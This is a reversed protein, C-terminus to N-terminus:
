PGSRATAKHIVTPREPLERTSDAEQPLLKGAAIKEVTDFGKSVKGVITYNGDLVAAPALAIYLRVGASSQDADRTFGVTGAAHKEESFESRLRYGIHGVGPDGTGAPCGFRILRVESKIGEKSEAQQHVLRDFRLGDFYGVKVLAILNRVHNPALEPRLAIEISGADTELVVVWPLPKEGEGVLTITPWIREVDDRLKATSKGAITQEVPPRQDPGVEESVARLFPQDFKAVPPPALEPGIPEIAVESERRKCSLCLFLVALTVIRHNM